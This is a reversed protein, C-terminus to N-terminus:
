QRDFYDVKFFDIGANKAALEDNISDGILLYDSLSTNPTYIYSFGEAEPKLLTTDNHSVIKTFRGVLKEKSLFDEIVMRTNTTWLYCNYRENSIDRLFNILEHNPSFGSYNKKEFDDIFINMKKRSLEGYKKNVMNTLHIGAFRGLPVEKSLPADISAVLDSIDKDIGFWNVHLDALTGDLDFILYKKPNKALYDELTM